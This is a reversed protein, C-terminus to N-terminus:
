KTLTAQYASLSAKTIKRILPMPLKKNHPFQIAGKSTTYNMLEAAFLVIIKPGPYIGIHNKFAAFHIINKTAKFTPIGYNIVCEVTPLVKTMLAHVELLRHVIEPDFGQIYKAVSENMIRTQVSGGM